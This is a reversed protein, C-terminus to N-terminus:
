NSLSLSSLSIQSEHQKRLVDSEITHVTFMGPLTLNVREIDNECGDNKSLFLLNNLLVKRVEL